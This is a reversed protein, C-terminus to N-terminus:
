HSLYRMLWRQMFSPTIDSLYHLIAYQFGVPRHLKPSEVQKAITRVVDSAVLQAGMKNLAKSTVDQSSLMHTNVFPPVVDCVNIGHEKWELELAETLAKIAFKSASYTSLEPVGYNSSASSVNIATSNPTRKLYTFAAHLCNVTGNVNVAFTRQHDEISLDEFSGVKLIGANNLLVDLQGDHNLCFEDICKEVAKADSVDLSYTSIRNTDKGDCFRALAESDLDALGLTWGRAYFYQATARGIGMGAGTIFIIKMIITKKTKSTQAKLTDPMLSTRITAFITIM